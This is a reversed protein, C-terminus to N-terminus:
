YRNQRLIDVKSDIWALRNIRGSRSTPIKRNHILIRLANLRIIQKDVRSLTDGEVKLARAIHNQRGRAFQGSNWAIDALLEYLYDQDGDAINLALDAFETETLRHEPIVDAIPYGTTGLLRKKAREIFFNYGFEYLQNMQNKNFIPSHNGEKKLWSRAKEGRTTPVRIIWDRLDEDANIADAIKQRQHSKSFGAALDIGLALTIGSNDEGKRGKPVKAKPHVGERDKTLNGREPYKMYHAKRKAILTSDNEKVLDSIKKKNSLLQTRSTSNRTDILGTSIILILIMNIILKM